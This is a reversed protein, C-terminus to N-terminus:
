RDRALREGRERAAAEWGARKAKWEEGVPVRRKIYPALVGKLSRNHEPPVFYLEVHDEVIKQVTTWGPGVGLRDRIDKSIVVQGKAGVVHGM